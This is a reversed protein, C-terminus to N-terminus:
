ASMDPKDVASHRYLINILMILLLIGMAIESAAIIIYSGKRGADERISIIGYLAWAITLAVLGNNRAFVYFVGVLLATLVMTVTWEQPSFFSLYIGKSVLWAAINAITAVCIWGLYISFPIDLWLKSPLPWWSFSLVLKEHITILLFLHVLMICVSLTTMEYHWAFLWSVNCLCVCIFLPSISLIRMKDRHNTKFLVFFQYIIFGLLFTYIVSWVSFTFGAPTFLNPYQASLQAQTKGNLPLFISLCNAAIMVTYALLNVMAFRKQVFPPQMSLSPKM